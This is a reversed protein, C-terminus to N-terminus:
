EKIFIRKIGKKHKSFADFIKLIIIGFIISIVIILILLKYYGLNWKMENNIYLIMDIIAIQFIYVPLSLKELFYFFKNNCIEYLYDKESFTISLCIIILFLIAFEITNTHRDSLYFILIYGIIEMTTMLFRTFDTYKVNKLRESIGYMFIGINIDMLARVVGKYCFITTQWPNGIFEYGIMLFCFSFFVILPSVIYVIKDKYKLLLPYTIFEVLIMSNIYWTISYSSYIKYEYSPLSLMNMFSIIFDTKPAKYVISLVPISILYLIVYYPLFKFIKNKFFDFSNTPIDKSEVNKNVTGKCFYFGSIIFFFEVGLYGYDFKDFHNGLHFAIILFSFLFKLLSIEGNHKKEVKNNM